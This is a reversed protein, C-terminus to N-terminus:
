FITWYILALSCVTKAAASRATCPRAPIANTRNKDGFKINAAHSKCGVRAVLFIVDSV